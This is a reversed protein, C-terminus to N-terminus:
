IDSRVLIRGVVGLQTLHGKAPNDYSETYINSDYFDTVTSFHTHTYTETVSSHVGQHFFCSTKCMKKNGLSILSGSGSGKNEERGPVLFIQETFKAPCQQGFASILNQACSPFLISLIIKQSESLIKLSHQSM